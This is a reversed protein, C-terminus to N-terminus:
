QGLARKIAEVAANINLRGTNIVIDYNIPDSIDASLKAYGRKV